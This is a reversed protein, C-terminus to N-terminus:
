TSTVEVEVTYNVQPIHIGVNVCREWKTGDIAIHVGKKPLVEQFIKVLVIRTCKVKNTSTGRTM